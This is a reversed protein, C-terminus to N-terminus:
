DKLMNPVISKGCVKAEFENGAASIDCLMVTVTKIISM